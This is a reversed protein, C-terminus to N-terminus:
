DNPVEMEVIYWQEDDAMMRAVDTAVIADVYPGNLRIGDFPNGIAIVYVTTGPKVFSFPNNVM